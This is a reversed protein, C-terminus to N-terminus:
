LYHGPIIIRFVTGKQPESELEVTGGISKTLKEVVALGLGTGQAKTTFFPKFAKAKTDSDMGCGNDSIIIIIKDNTKEAKVSVTGSEKVADISNQIINTIIQRLKEKDSKITINDPVSMEFSVDRKAEGPPYLSHIIEKTLENLDFEAIRVEVPKAYILLDETLTELRKAESVIINLYDKGTDTNQPVPEKNKEMLYQAFGKISGLPNRIEHALVSAMEGMVALREKEEMIRKLEESRKVTKIIFYGMVWLVIIVISISLIQIRAQRIIKEAHYTHLAIRLIKESHQVPIASNLVFVEEGTGLTMHNYFPKGTEVVTKFFEDQIQKGILNENSHLITTGNKDYLAIFAIGEWMGGTIIDKFINDKGQMTRSLSAELSTAIGFAQLKLSDEAANISNRYTLITSLMTAFTATILILVLYLHNKKSYRDPMVPM